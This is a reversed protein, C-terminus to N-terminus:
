AVANRRASTRLHVVKPSPENAVIRKLRREWKELAARKEKDYEYREYVKATVGSDTHNLIKSIVVRDIGNEAMLSAASRRLDHFKFDKYDQKLEALAARVADRLRRMPKQINHLPAGKKGGRFVFVSDRGPQNYIEDLIRRAQPALPVRHARKNKSHEKPITWWGQDRDVEAWRMGLVESKRQATLLALHFANVIHPPESVLAAWLAKVEHAKLVRDRPEEKVARQIGAAPNAPVIRRAMGFNFIKHVLAKVRNARVKAGNPNRTVRMAISDILGQVDEYGLSRAKRAEWVPNLEHDIIKQDEPWSRKNPKAHLEMYKAALSAFTPLKEAELREMEETAESADREWQEAEDIRQKEAAAEAALRKKEGAPDQARNARAQEAIAEAERVSMEPFRGITLRRGRLEKEGPEKHKYFFIFTKVGRASVRLGFGKIATDWYVVRGSQPVAAAKVNEKTFHFSQGL